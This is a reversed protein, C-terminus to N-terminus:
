FDGPAVQACMLGIARWMEVVQRRDDLVGRVAWRAVVQQDFLERKVIADKRSDGAPRMFLADYPVEHRALWQETLSRCSEDRGSMVVVAAGAALARVLDVVAPNPADEGVRHWDFPGRARPTSGMLALTGDIDVLWALPLAPDPRYTAGPGGAGDAGAVSRPVLASAPLGRGSALFRAFLDRIVEAGVARDGRAARESDRRICEDLPVDTFDRVAFGAGAQAALEVWATVYRARLHLDDVVVSRGAALLARVSAQQVVSIASEQQHTPRATGYLNARLDDRNMRARGAPDEEVWSRAWTSKGSAPLGRTIVLEAM